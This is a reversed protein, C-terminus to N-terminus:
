EDYFEEPYTTISHGLVHIEGSNSDDNRIMVRLTRFSETEDIHFKKRVSAVGGLYFPLDVPLEPASDSYIIASGLNNYEKGDKSVYVQLEYTGGDGSAEVEVSGGIKNIAPQGFDEERSEETSTIATGDDTWGSFAKFMKGNTSDVYYLEEKGGIKYKVWDAVNWGTIVSWGNSAPYYVWVTNNYTSSNTPLAIIYKNDYYVASAKHVYAWSIVDFENKNPYSVPLSAHFQLKDQETRRLARVGDQALWYIDDAVVIATKRAVCGVSDSVPVPQDTAAPVVSPNIAWIAKLGMVIIGMDRTPVLAREEGVPIRYWNSVTDFCDSYDSSYADSFFLQENKLVWLRNAYWANVLSKPPSDSATGSTNGLDQSAGLSNFVTPNEVGNQFLFLDDPSVGSQKIPTLSVDATDSMLSAMSGVSLFSGTGSWKWLRGAEVAILQDTGGQITYNLASVFPDSGVTDAVQTIGRRKKRIGVSSIDVNSLLLAQKEGIQQPHQATNIGGSYDRRIVYLRQDDVGNQITRPNPFM